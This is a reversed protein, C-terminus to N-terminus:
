YNDEASMEGDGLDWHAGEGQSLTVTKNEGVVYDGFGITSLTIFAFYFGESFSWGEVHSFVMPPFILIVLTGLTLFLALGLVQLVQSPLLQGRLGSSLRWSQILNPATQPLSPFPVPGYSPGKGARCVRSHLNYSRTCSRTGGLSLNPCLSQMLPDLLSKSVWRPKPIM